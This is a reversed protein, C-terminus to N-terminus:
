RWLRVRADFAALEGWRATATSTPPDQHMAFDQVDVGVLLHLREHHAKGQLGPPGRGPPSCHRSSLLLGQRWTPWLCSSM